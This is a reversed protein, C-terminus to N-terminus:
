SLQHHPETLHSEATSCAQGLHATFEPAGVPLVTDEGPEGVIRPPSATVHSFTYKLVDSPLPFSAM